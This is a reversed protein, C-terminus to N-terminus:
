VEVLLLSYMGDGRKGTTNQGSINKVEVYRDTGDFNFVLLTSASTATRLASIQDVPSRGDYDLRCDIDVRYGWAVRSRKIYSLVVSRIIPSTTTTGGRALDFRFQIDRFSVGVSSAFSYETEGGATITGLTTWGDAITGYTHNLRYKVVVTETASADAVDIKVRIAVKDERKWGADFWPTIHVGSAAYVYASNKKPKTSGRQLVVYNTVNNTIFWLRYAYVSAEVGSTMTQETASDIWMPSWGGGDYSMLSSTSTGTSQTSDLLAYLHTQGPILSIIEANYESPLGDDKDLGVNQITATSGAAYKYLSLGSPIYSADQWRCAGVGANPHKPLSLETALFLTNTNDHAYLGVTSSAYIIEVGDADRYLFLNKAPRADLPLVADNTFAPSAANPTAAYKLQGSTNIAYFKNSWTIGKDVGSVDTQTFVESTNMYVYNTGDGLAIVLTSNVTSILGTITAPMYALLTWADGTANLKAVWRGFAAYLNSNFTILYNPNGVASTGRTITATDAFITSSTSGETIKLRLRTAALSLTRTVTLLTWAAATALSSDSTGVGDDITLKGNTGAPCWVYMSFTYPAGRYYNTADQYTPDSSINGWSYSGGQARAASRAGNTWGTELECDGNIIAVTAPTPSAVSSVLPGLTIEKKYRTDCTSWWSRDVHVAEDMEEILIGGRQDDMIWASATPEDTESYDGTVVKGPMVSALTPRVPGSLKYRVGNLLIEDKRVVKTAV